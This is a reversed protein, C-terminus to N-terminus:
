APAGTTAAASWCTWRVDPLPSSRSVTEAESGSVARRSAARTRLAAAGPADAAIPSRVKGTRPFPASDPGVVAARVPCPQPEVAKVPVFSVEPM